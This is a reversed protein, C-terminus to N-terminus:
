PRGSSMSILIGNPAAWSGRMIRVQRIARTIQKHISELRPNYQDVPPPIPENLLDYGLIAPEDRSARHAAV